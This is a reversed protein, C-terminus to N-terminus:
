PERLYLRKQFHSQPSPAAWSRPWVLRVRRQRRPAQAQLEEEKGAALGELWALAEDDSPMEEGELWSPLAAEEAVPAPAKELTEVEEGAVEAGLETLWDPIEPEGLALAEEEGAGEVEEEEVVEERM